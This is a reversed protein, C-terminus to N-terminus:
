GRITESDRENNEFWFEKKSAIKKFQCDFVWNYNYKLMQIMYSVM